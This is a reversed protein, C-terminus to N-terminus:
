STRDWMRGLLDASGSPGLAVWATTVGDVSESGWEEALSEVLFTRARVGVSSNAEGAADPAVHAVRITVGGRGESSLTVRFRSRTHFAANTALECVVMEAPEVLGTLGWGTLVEAVFRRAARPALSTPEFDCSHEHASVSMPAPEPITAGHSACVLARERSRGDMAAVPYACFLSFSVGSALDNWLQELAIASAVDDSEWLVAVMEGYIRLPRRQDKLSSILGGVEVAFRVPDPSGDMMFSALVEDADLAVYRGAVRAAAVDVGAATLAVDFAARRKPTAVVLATEGAVLGAGLFRSVSQALGEEREYFQVVHEDPAITPEDLLLLALDGLGTEPLKSRCQRLQLSISWRRGSPLTTM